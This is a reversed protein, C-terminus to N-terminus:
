LSKLWIGLTQFLSKLFLGVTTAMQNDFLFQSYLMTKGCSVLFFIVIHNMWVHGTVSPGGHKERYMHLLPGDTLENQCSM